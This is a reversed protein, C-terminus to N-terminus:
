AAQAAIAVQDPTVGIDIGTKAFVQQKPQTSKQSFLDSLSAEGKQGFGADYISSGKTEEFISKGGVFTGQDFAPPTYSDDIVLDQSTENVNQKRLSSVLNSLWASFDPMRMNAKLSSMARSIGLDIKRPDLNLSSLSSKLISVFAQRGETTGLSQIGKYLDRVTRNPLNFVTKPATTAQDNVKILNGFADFTETRTPTATDMTKYGSSVDYYSVTRTGDPNLTTRQQATKSQRLNQMYDGTQAIGSRLSGTEGTVFEQKGGLAVSARGPANYVGSAASSIGQGMQSGLNIAGDKARQYYSPQSTPATEKLKQDAQESLSLSNPQSVEPQAEINSVNNAQETSPNKLNQLQKQAQRQRVISQIKTAAGNQIDLSYKSSSSRSSNAEVPRAAEM